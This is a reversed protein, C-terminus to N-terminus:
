EYTKSRQQFMWILLSKKGKSSNCSTCAPVINEMSNNGGSFLPIVHDITPHDLYKGCYACRNCYDNILETEQEPTWIDGSNIERLYRNRKTIAIKDPNLKEWKNRSARGREPHMKHWRDTTRNKREKNNESWIRVNEKIKEANEKYHMADEKRLRERNKQYWNSKNKKAKDPNDKVWKKVSILRCKKCDTKRGDKSKKDKYFEDITKEIGCKTCKKTEKM